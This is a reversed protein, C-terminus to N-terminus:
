KLQHETMAEVPELVQRSAREARQKIGLLMKREMVFEIPALLLRILVLAPTKFTPKWRM